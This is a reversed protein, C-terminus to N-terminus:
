FQAMVTKLITLEYNYIHYTGPATPQSYDSFQSLKTLELKPSGEEFGLQLIIKPRCLFMVESVRQGHFFM